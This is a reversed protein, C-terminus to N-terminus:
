VVESLVPRMTALAVKNLMDDSGSSLSMGIEELGLEGLISSTTDSSEVMVKSTAHYRKPLTMTIAAAVVLFFILTQIVVWKRRRIAQVFQLLEM